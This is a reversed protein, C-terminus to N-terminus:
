AANSKGSDGSTGASNTAYAAVEWLGSTQPLTFAGSTTSSFPGKTTQISAYSDSSGYAHLFYTIPSTGSSAGWSASYNWSTTGNASIFTLTPTGPTSPAIAAPAPIVPSSPTSAPGTGVGNVDAITFTYSQGTVFSAVVSIPSASAGNYSLSLSPSSTIIRNNIPSGNAAGDVYGVYVLSSSSVTVSGISAQGPVSSAPATTAYSFASIPGSYGTANATTTGTTGTYPVIYFNYTTSPSLNIITTSSNASFGGGGNVGYNTTASIPDYYFVIYRNAYLSSGWSITVSNSTSSVPTFSSITLPTNITTSASTSTGSSSTTSATVVFQYLNALAPSTQSTPVTYSVANGTNIAPNAITGSSITGWTSGGNTSWQFAYTLSTPTPSWNYTTGTLTVLYTSTDTSQSIIAPFQTNLGNSFIQVVTGAVNMFMRKVLQPTGLSNIFIKKVLQPTGISNVFIRM